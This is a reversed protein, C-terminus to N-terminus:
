KRKQSDRVTYKDYPGGEHSASTGFHKAIIKAASARTLGKMEIEVGFKQNTFDITPM